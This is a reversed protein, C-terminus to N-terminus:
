DVWGQDRLGKMLDDWASYDPSEPEPKLDADIAKGDRMNQLKQNFVENKWDEKNKANEADHKAKRGEYLGKGMGGVTGVLGGIAEGKAASERQRMENYGRLRYDEVEAARQLAGLGIYKIDQGYDAMNM